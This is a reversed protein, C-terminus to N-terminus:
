LELDELLLIQIDSIRQLARDNSLFAQCGTNLAAALQLADPTRLNYRARLDAAQEAIQITIPQLSFNRSNVLLDYYAKEVDKRALRKPHTLVETLTIVSSFGAIQGTDVQHIIVRMLHLYAPHREVFYILPATDFGLATVGSLAIDIKVPSPEM